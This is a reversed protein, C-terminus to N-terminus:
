HFLRFPCGHGQFFSPPPQPPRNSVYLFGQAFVMTVALKETRSLTMRLVQPVPLCLIVLNTVVNSAANAIWRGVLDICHGSVSPLWLKQVPACTFIFLCTSIISWLIVFAGIAVLCAKGLRSLDFIRYFMFLISVKTLCLNWAFVIRATLSIKTMSIIQTQTSASAPLGLGQSYMAFVLSTSVLNCVVSMMILWDDWWLKQQMLRRSILRLGVFVVSVAAMSSAIGILWPQLSPYDNDSTSPDM